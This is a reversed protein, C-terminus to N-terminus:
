QWQHFYTYYDLLDVKGQRYEQVVIKFTADTVSKEKTEDLWDILHNTENLLFSLVKIILHFIQHEAFHRALIANDIHAITKQSYPPINLPITIKRM